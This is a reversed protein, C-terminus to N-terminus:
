VLGTTALEASARRKRGRRDGAPMAANAVLEYVPAKRSDACELICGAAKLRKVYNYATGIEICMLAALTRASIPQPKMRVFVKYARQLHTLKRDEPLHLTSM